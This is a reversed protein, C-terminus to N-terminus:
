SIRRGRLRHRKAGNVPNVWIDSTCSRDSRAERRRYSGRFPMARCTVFHYPITHYPITRYPIPHHPVTHYPITHHTTTHHSITHYPITHYPMTQYPITHYPIPHYPLTPYPIVPNPQTLYPLGPYPLTPYTAHLHFSNTDYRSLATPAVRTRKAQALVGKSCVSAPSNVCM